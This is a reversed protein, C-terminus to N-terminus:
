KNSDIGVPTKIVKSKRTDERIAYNKNWTEENVYGRKHDLHVCIASYRIQKSKLGKNFLREGSVLPVNSYKGSSSSVTAENIKRDRNTM